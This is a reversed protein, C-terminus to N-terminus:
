EYHKRWAEDLKRETVYEDVLNSMKIIYVDNIQDNTIDYSLQVSETNYQFNIDYSCGNNIATFSTGNGSTGHIKKKLKNNPYDKGIEIDLIEGAIKVYKKVYGVCRENVYVMPVRYEKKKYCGVIEYSNETPVIQYLVHYENSIGVANNLLRFGYLREPLMSASGTDEVQIRDVLNFAENIKSIREEEKHKENLMRAYIEVNRLTLFVSILEKNEDHYQLYQYKKGNIVKESIYGNVSYRDLLCSHQYLQRSLQKKYNQLIDLLRM